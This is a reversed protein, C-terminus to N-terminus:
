RAVSLDPPKMRPDECVVPLPRRHLLVRGADAAARRLRHAARRPQKAGPTRVTYERYYDRAKRRCCGSATASACATASTAPVTRRQPDAALTERAERPLDRSPSRRCSRRCRARSRSRRRLHRLLAVCSPAPPGRLWAVRRMDRATYRCRAGPGVRAEGRREPSRPHAPRAAAARHGAHARRDLLDQGRQTKPFAIVDRISEAGAM